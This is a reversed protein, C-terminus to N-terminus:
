GLRQGYYQYFYVQEGEVFYDEYIGGKSLPISSLDDILQYDLKVLHEKINKLKFNSRYKEEILSNRGFKKFLIYTGFLECTAKTYHNMEDLLFTSYDFSYNSTGSYDILVDISHDRIPIEKFDSTIFLINKKINSKELTNKLFKHRNIDHDVAIYLCDDPLLHYMNRLAFGVGSGLDLFTKGQLTKFPIVKQMRDLGQYLIDLYNTDTDSIYNSIYEQNINATEEITIPSIMLIGDEIPYTEGCACTLLGNIIQNEVIDGTKITLPSHCKLCSLKDITSLNVGLTFLKEHEHSALEKLQKELADKVLELQKIEEIVNSYKKQFLIQYHDDKQYSTMNALLNFTMITKIESLKFGMKKLLFVDYISTQCSKDFSYQGNIKIPLILGLDIYHRVTDISIKNNKAFTGIRM